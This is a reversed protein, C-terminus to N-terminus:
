RGFAGEASPGETLDIDVPLGGTVAWRVVRSTPGAVVVTALAAITSPSVLDVGSFGPSSRLAGGSGCCRNCGGDGVRGTRGIGIGPGWRGVSGFSPRRRRWPAYVLAHVGLPTSGVSDHLLGALFAVTAGREPGGHFGALM